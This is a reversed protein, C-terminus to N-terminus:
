DVPTSHTLHWNRRFEQLATKTMSAVSKWEEDTLGTEKKEVRAGNNKTRQPCAARARDLEGHYNNLFTALDRRHIGKDGKMRESRYYREILLLDHLDDDFCKQKALERFAKIEKDSWPTSLRRNFLRAIRIAAPSSPTKM